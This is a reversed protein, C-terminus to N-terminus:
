AEEEERYHIEAGEADDHELNLLLGKLLQKEKDKSSAQLATNWYAAQLASFLCLYPCPFFFFFFPHYLSLSSFSLSFLFLSLSFPLGLLFCHVCQAPSSSVAEPKRGMKKCLRGMRTLVEVELPAISRLALLEQLALQLNGLEEQLLARQFMAQPNCPDLSSAKNFMGLAAKFEKQALLVQLSSPSLCLSYRSLSHLHLFLAPLPEAAAVKRNGGVM